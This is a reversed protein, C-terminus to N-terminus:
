PTPRRSDSDAEPRYRGPLFLDRGRSLAFFTEGYMVLRFGPVVHWDADRLERVVHKQAEAAFAVSTEQGRRDFDRLLAAAQRETLRLRGWTLAECLARALAPSPEM